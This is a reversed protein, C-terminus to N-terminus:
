MEWQKEKPLSQHYLGMYYMAEQHVKKTWQMNVFVNDVLKNIGLMTIAWQVVYWEQQMQNTVM